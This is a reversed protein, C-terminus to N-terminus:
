LKFCSGVLNDLSFAVRYNWCAKFEYGERRQRWFLEIVSKLLGKLLKRKSSAEFVSHGSLHPSPQPINCFATLSVVSLESVKIYHSWDPQRKDRISSTHLSM